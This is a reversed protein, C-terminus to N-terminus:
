FTRDKRSPRTRRSKKLTIKRRSFFRWIASVSFRSGKEALAAQIEALTADPTEAVLSVITEAEAEIAKSRRDGGQPKPQLDGTAEAQAAWRIASSVGVRFHAAARRRSMGGEIAEVVRLRLDVSLAEAM